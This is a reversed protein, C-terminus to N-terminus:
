QASAFLDTEPHYGSWGYWESIFSPVFELVNGKLTGSIAEGQANWRSGTQRDAIAFGTALPNFFELVRGDVISSYALGTQAEENYIVLVPQGGLTDNVVGGARTLEEVPYGKFSGDLEAGVVLDNSALRDDGFVAENPNFSGIRVVRYRDQFPTDQSLVLTDPHAETWEAWTMQPMPIMEMRAGALEGEVAKGDFHTWVSGTERDRMTLVGKLLGFVEFTLPTEGV